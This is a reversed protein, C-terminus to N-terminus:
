IVKYLTFTGSEISGGVVFFNVGDNAEAVTHVGGGQFGELVPVANLKTNENTFFSYESANNFNFLYIIHNTQENTDTGVTSAIKWQTGNTNTDTGFSTNAKIIQHAVDYQSDSDAVGSTTTRMNFTNDVTPAVNNIAVMYVDDSNIGTLTVSSVASTVTETAVQVLQGAM